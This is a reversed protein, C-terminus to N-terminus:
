GCGCVRCFDAVILIEIPSCAKQVSECYVLALTLSEALSNLAFM